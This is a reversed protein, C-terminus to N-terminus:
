STSYTGLYTPLKQRSNLYDNSSIQGALALNLLCKCLARIVLLCVPLCHPTVAEMVIM